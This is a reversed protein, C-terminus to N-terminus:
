EIPLHQGRSVTRIRHCNACVVECKAIEALLKARACTAGTQGISFLKATGPMHDFDLAAAHASYGCDVCGRELKYQTIFARNERIQAHRAAREEPHNKKYAKSLERGAQISEASRHKGNHGAQRGCLGGTRVAMGCPTRVHM